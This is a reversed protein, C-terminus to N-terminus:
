ATADAHRRKALFRLESWTWALDPKVGSESTRTGISPYSHPGSEIQCMRSFFCPLDLDLFICFYTEDAQVPTGSGGMPKPNEDKMAERIRHVMFWATKYTVGLMRHLQHASMGKKSSAILHFVLLWKNLPM